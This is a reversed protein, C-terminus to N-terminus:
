INSQKRLISRLSKFSFLSLSFPFIYNIKAIASNNVSQVAFINNYKEKIKELDSLQVCMEILFNNIATRERGREEGGFKYTHEFPGVIIDLM